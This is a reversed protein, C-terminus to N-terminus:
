QRRETSARPTPILGARRRHCTLYTAGQSGARIGRRVDKPIYVASGSDLSEQGDDLEVTGAGSVGVLLVDVETNTHAALYEGPNLRVLNVNLDPGVLSGIVGARQQQEAEAQRTALDLREVAPQSQEM